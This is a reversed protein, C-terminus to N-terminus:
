DKCVYKANLGATPVCMDVNKCCYGFHQMDVVDPEMKTVTEATCILSQHNFLLELDKVPQLQVHMYTKGVTWAVFAM